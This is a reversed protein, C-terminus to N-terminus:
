SMNLVKESPTSYGIGLVFLFDGKAIGTRYFREERRGFWGGLDLTIGGEITEGRQECAIPGMSRM